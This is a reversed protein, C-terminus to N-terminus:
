RSADTPSIFAREITAAAKRAAAARDRRRLLAAGAFVLGNLLGFGGLVLERPREATPEGDEHGGDADGDGAAADGHDDVPMPSGHDDVPMPSGDMDMGPMPSADVQHDDTAGPSASPSASPGAGLGHGGMDMGGMDVPEESPLGGMGDHPDGIVIPDVTPAVHAEDAPPDAPPPTLAPAPPVGRAAVLAQDASIDRPSAATAGLAAATMAAAVAGVAIWARAREM